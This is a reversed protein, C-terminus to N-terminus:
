ANIVRSCAKITKDKDIYKQTGKRETKSTVKLSFPNKGELRVVYWQANIKDSSIGLEKGVARDLEMGLLKKGQVCRKVAKAKDAPLLRARSGASKKSAKKKSSKIKSSKKKSAKKKRAPKEEEDSSYVRARIQLAEVTWSSGDAKNKSLWKDWQGEIKKTCEDVCRLNEDLCAVVEHLDRALEDWSELAQQEAPTLEAPKKLKNMVEDELGQEEDELLEEDLNDVDSDAM